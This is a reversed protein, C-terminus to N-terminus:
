GDSSRSDQVLGAELASSVYPKAWAPVSVNDAFGTHEIDRLAEMDAANMTTAVFERRTVAVDSQSSYAGGMCEDVFIGEEALRTATKHAPDGNTDAYTIKASSKEIKIKVIAPDSFNGVTDVTVYTFSDRGTENEYPTYVFENGGDGPMTVVGRVPKSPIHHTLLDREPDVTSFQATMAVNKYTTLELNEVMPAGNAEALLYLEVIVVDGGWGDSFISTLQFQAELSAPVALLTFRLGDVAETAIM